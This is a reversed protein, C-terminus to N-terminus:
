LFPICVDAEVCSFSSILRARWETAAQAEQGRESVMILRSVRASQRKFDLCVHLRTHLGLFLSSDGVRVQDGVVIM